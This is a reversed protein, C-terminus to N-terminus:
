VLVREIGGDNAREVYDPLWDPGLIRSAMEIVVYDAELLGNQLDGTYRHLGQLCSPCSTLIKIPGKEPVAGTARLAAEDRRLEETKRFRVQTSIDPRTVGLTGSEGCCRESKLVNEGVLARVTKMPDQQKMPSHCPDHFLYGGAAQGAGLTIGKELLYEHIDVIRSGPFIEEFKYGQLQDYCTGCSVVVTKIDLYNLTNAVRHFLVRNDTIMKEAKDYQGAGRQPYGCCLYGPPLVTQVGAHWLMAQTALGVQSFLRESGCGPFYFVAETDATTAVPDRIIPVYAKDEIDLLARATRKPLGGPMKKNIFHIVQEKLPAPGVTAPPAATQRNALGRLLNNAFRQARFGIGVMATRMLKITEPSTANLFFMAAANGPRFSKQGMKRLLNRMNMSVDGFDIKVPCPALCKHCVTCHDAVDEFEQWHKISVGRRTQEEYLFAEILLSTALIKNRPSYLLNARPVHTACVPKCKGCRLCDKVSDAIQGIDSQQMILSEHGMLGFSPTYANTLDAKIDGGRLLKGKNFRGEPDVRRKYDTFGALEEDSLFELKTIGIGHEGSIVGGLSRALAMIRGVAEHATQLMEYNDSNVPINTHVNGDGAHMHLAVWVRGKLVRDHIRQCEAVVPELAAGAFISQLPARIQTKWSARLTRDQLDAFVSRRTDPQVVDLQAMWHQWLGRVERLLALAQQVRDELLEASAIEVADDSKGLPLEGETFFAELADVTALKNRLSLEINIREIGDTYEAMRPLPIVVDENIKFANTHRSIAATRKRDLWFKKRADASVAVFGEGARSNAIRVVESTARAVADADDGAIDGVLVMKPLGGRKSKTAYGVAKLYRDDLHELGALIAGGNKAEAFMFDKIEVISPVADKANGFFELCVTRTHAPMRHVIWRASTILGDCGEKQVGPLGALFKDTVDKGLGEKRFVRGPIDLRETSLPTKGDAAFTRLEFSALEVDHIKGLNHNLRVVELWQAQPTVMRWSALNDLATGWLVAKKGGANMAINGGICSAEASTPDVAFVYGGREAADAVRQTVVGAESWVTAVPQAVGPLAVMEVESMAELKETNIVASNWALPVAGGTYGTGGGRPIITLGLEICGKVLAAMEAETDPTLVVFPYEVRWDTADTVHAVRSLGDFKVNHKATVRGLVRTVRRRLEAMEGFQREFREVASRAATLLEGVAADREGDEQPSRRAEIAGLRHHLAEILAARRKPNDLLDDQLYPNRQVVWVDGLVEYLMRASRGTRREQRLRNLVEWARAGLLRIVIERDSFSTYNYPIERLRPALGEAAAGARSVAAMHTLSAPANM